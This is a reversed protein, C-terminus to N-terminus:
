VSGAFWLTLWTNSRTMFTLVISLDLSKQFLIVLVNLREQTDLSYDPLISEFLMKNEEKRVLSLLAIHVLKSPDSDTKKMAVKM